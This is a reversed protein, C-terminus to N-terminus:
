TAGAFASTSRTTSVLDAAGASALSSSARKSTPRSAPRGGVSGPTQPWIRRMPTVPPVCPMGDGIGYGQPVGVSQDGREVEPVFYRETRCPDRFPSNRPQDPTRDTRRPPPSSLLISSSLIASFSLLLVVVHLGDGGARRVGSRRRSGSRRLYGQCHRVGAGPKRLELEGGSSPLCRRGPRRGAAPLHRRGSGCRGPCPHDCGTRRAHGARLGVPAHTGGPVPSGNPPLPRRATLAFCRGFHM